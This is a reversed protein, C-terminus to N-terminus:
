KVGLTRRIWMRADGDKMVVEILERVFRRCGGERYGRERCLIELRSLLREESKGGGIKGGVIKGVKGCVFSGTYRGCWDETRAKDDIGSLPAPAPVNKEGHIIKNMIPDIPIKVMPIFLSSLVHTPITALTLLTLLKM